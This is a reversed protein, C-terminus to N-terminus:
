RVAQRGLICREFADISRESSFGAVLENGALALRTREADDRCLRVISRALEDPSGVPALLATRGAVAYDGVGDIATSVVACGCAMAEAPPLHWGESRSPCLYISSANYVEDVLQRPSPSEVYRIWAPLGSPRSRVGFLVAELDPVERRAAALAAIGDTGGKLPSPSWLMAVRRPRDKVPVVVRFRSVDIGPGPLRFMDEPDVGLALGRRYLWDAIVVKRMPVRWTADVRAAPGDWVEYHQVLYHKRGKGDPYRAVSEATRWATAVVADGDPIDAPRLTHVYTLRVRPDVEQWAVCTPRRRAVDVLGRAVVKPERRAALRGLYQWPELFAAHVVAVEHGREVLGNAYQYVVRVGGIAMTAFSPLVFTVRV